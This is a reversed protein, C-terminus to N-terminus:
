WRDLNDAEGGRSERNCEQEVVGDSM